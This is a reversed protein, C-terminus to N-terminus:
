MLVESTKPKRGNLKLNESTKPKVKVKVKDWQNHITIIMMITSIKVLERGFLVVVEGHLKFTLAESTKSSLQAIINLDKM